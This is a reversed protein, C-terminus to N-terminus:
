ILKRVYEYLLAKSGMFVPMMKSNYLVFKGNKLKLTYANLNDIFVKKNVPLNNMPAILSAVIDEKTM